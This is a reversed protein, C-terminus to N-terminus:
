LFSIPTMTELVDIQAVLTKLITLARRLTSTAEAHQNAILCQSLKDLEHLTIKFWLEYVQHIIIFLMEDHEPPDSQREQLQLLESIKLYTSYTQDM